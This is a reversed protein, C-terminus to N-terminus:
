SCSKEAMAPTNNKKKEVCVPVVVVLISQSFMVIRKSWSKM